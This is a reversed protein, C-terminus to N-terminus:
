PALDDLMPIIKDLIIPEHEAKVDFSIMFIHLGNKLKLPITARKVNQYMEFEYVTGGLKRELATRTGMRLFSQLISLRADEKTLLPKIGKRYVHSVLEGRSDAIGAFRITKDLSLVQACFKEM